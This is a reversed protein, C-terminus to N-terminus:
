FKSRRPRQQASVSRIILKHRAGAPMPVEDRRRAEDILRHGEPEDLTNGNPKQASKKSDMQEEALNIREM